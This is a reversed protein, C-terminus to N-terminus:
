RSMIDPDRIAREVRGVTWSWGLGQEIYDRSMTAIAPADALRALRVPAVPTM